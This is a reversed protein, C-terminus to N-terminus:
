FQYSQLRWADTRELTTGPDTTGNYLYMRGEVDNGAMVITMGSWLAGVRLMRDLQVNLTDADHFWAHSVPHAIFPMARMGGISRARVPSVSESCFLLGPIRADTDVDDHLPGPRYSRDREYKALVDGIGRTRALASTVYIVYEGLPLLYQKDVQLPETASPEHVFARLVTMGRDDTYRASDVLITETGSAAYAYTRTAEPVSSFGTTFRADEPLLIVDPAHRLAASIAERIAVRQRAFGDTSAFDDASFYTDVAIVHVGRESVDVPISIGATAGFVVMMLVIVIARHPLPLRTGKVLLVYAAVSVAAAVFSLAYVGALRAAFQVIGHDALVYGLYGFSFHANVTSGPGLASISFVISSFIEAVIWAVPAMGYQVVEHTRMFYWWTGFVAFGFGLAIAAAGWHFGVVVIQHSAPIGIWDLPLTDWFWWLAIASKVAGFMWGAVAATQWSHARSFAAFLVLLAPIFLLWAIEIVLALGLLLGAAVAGCYPMYADGLRAGHEM